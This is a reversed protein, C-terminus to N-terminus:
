GDTDGGRFRGNVGRLRDGHAYSGVPETVCIFFRSTKRRFSLCRIKQVCVGSLQLEPKSVLAISVSFHVHQPHAASSRLTLQNVAM